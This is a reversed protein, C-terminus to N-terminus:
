LLPLWCACCRSSRWCLLQGAPGVVETVSGAPLGGHMAADLPPLWTTLHSARAARSQLVQLAQLPRLASPTLARWCRASWGGTGVASLSSCAGWSVTVPPPAVHAAVAALLGRVAELPLDLLEQLDVETRAFLSGATQLGSAHLRTVM